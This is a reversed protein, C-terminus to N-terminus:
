PRHHAGGNPHLLSAYKLSNVVYEAANKAALKQREEKEVGKNGDAWDCIAKIVIWDVKGDYSSVYLGAGEMEGGVAEAEIKVLSDRFDINDILKEGSLVVGFRVKAGAWKTQQFSRFHSMLRPSADPSAGRPTIKGKKGIRQQEYLRLLKSVLIDGILQDEENVGFAIGVAIVAGPELNSIAKEVTQQMGGSGGSGMESIAHYVTTAGIKGLDHYSRCGLSVPKAEHGTAALFADHVARTEHENVTVLVVDPRPTAVRVPVSAPSKSSEQMDFGITPLGLSAFAARAPEASSPFTVAALRQLEAFATPSPRFTEPPVGLRQAATFVASYHGPITEMLNLATEAQYTHWTASQDAGTLSGVAILRGWQNFWVVGANHFESLAERLPDGPETEKLLDCLIRGKEEYTARLAALGREIAVVDQQPQTM